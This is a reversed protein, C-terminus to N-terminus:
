TPWVCCNVAVALSAPPFVMGPIVKVQFEVLGATAEMVFAPSAEPRAIPVVVMVAVPPATVLLPVRRETVCDVTLEM